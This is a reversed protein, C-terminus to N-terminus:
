FEVKCKPHKERFREVGAATVKTNHVDVRDVPMNGLFDFVRDSVSSGSFDITFPMAYELGKLAPLDRDDVKPDHIRIIINTQDPRKDPFFDGGLREIEDLSKLYTDNHKVNVYFWVAAVCTLAAIAALFIKTKSM